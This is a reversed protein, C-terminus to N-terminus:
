NQTARQRDKTERRETQCRAGPLSQLRYRAKWWRHLQCGPQDEPRKGDYSRFRHTTGKVKKHREGVEVIIPIQEMFFHLGLTRFTTPRRIRGVRAQRKPMNEQAGLFSGTTAGEGAGTAGTSFILAMPDFGTSMSGASKSGRQYSNPGSDVKDILSAPSEESVGKSGHGSERRTTPM